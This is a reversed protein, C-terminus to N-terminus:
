IAVNISRPEGVKTLYDVRLSVRGAQVVISWARMKGDSEAAHKAHYRAERALHHASYDSVAGTVDNIITLM